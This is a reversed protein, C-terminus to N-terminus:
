PRWSSPRTTHGDHASRSLGSVRGTQRQPLSLGLFEAFPRFLIKPTRPREGFRLHWPEGEFLCLACGRSPSDVRGFWGVHRLTGDPYLLDFRRLLGRVVAHRVRAARGQFGHLALSRGISWRVWSSATANDKPHGIVM